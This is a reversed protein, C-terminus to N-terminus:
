FNLGYPALTKNLRDLHWLRVALEGEVLVGLKRGDASLSVRRVPGHFPGLTMLQDYGKETRAFLQVLGDRSGSALLRGDKSFSLSRIPLDHSPLKALTKLDPLQILFQEGEETGVAVIKEDARLAVTGITSGLDLRQRVRSGDRASHLYLIGERSGLVVWKEGAALSHFARPGYLKKDLENDVRGALKWKPADWWALTDDGVLGWLRQKDPSLSLAKCQTAIMELWSGPRDVPLIWVSDVRAERAPDTLEIRIDLPGNQEKTRLSDVYYLQYQGASDGYAPYSYKWDKGSVRCRIETEEDAVQSDKRMCVLISMLDANPFRSQPLQCLLTEKPKLRAARGNKAAEDTIVPPRSGDELAFGNEEIIISKGVNAGTLRDVFRFRSDLLCPGLIRDLFFAQNASEHVALRQFSFNTEWPFVFRDKLQPSTRCGLPVASSTGQEVDCSIIESGWYCDADPDLAQRESIAFLRSGDSSFQFEKIEGPSMAITTEFSSVRLEYLRIEGESKAALFRGDPTLAVPPWPKGGTSIRMLTAGSVSEWIELSRRDGHAVCIWSGNKAIGRLMGGSEAAERCVQGDRLDILRQGAALWRGDPSFLYKDNGPLRPQRPIPQLTKLDYVDSRGNTVPIFSRGDPHVAVSVIKHSSVAQVKGVRSWNNGVNWCVTNGADGETVSFLFRGDPTFQVDRVTEQDAEWSHLPEGESKLDWAHLKGHNTGAVLWRGNPDFALSSLRDQFHDSEGSFLRGLNAFLTTFFYKGVLRAAPKNRAPNRLEYVYVWTNPVGKQHAIALKKGDPSIAIEGPPLDRIVQIERADFGTLASAMLTRLEAPSRSPVNFQAAKKLNEEASWTWGRQKKIREERVASVLSFYRETNALKQKEAALESAALSEQRFWLGAWVLGVILLSAVALATVAPNRRCWRWAQEFASVPRSQIPRGELFRDLEEALDAASGLRKAPDKELCKLCLTELDAHCRPNIQRPPTPSAEKVKRLVEYLDGEFPPQGTLLFYLTAGFAYVDSAVTTAAANEAQEPPMYKPTGMAVGTLTMGREESIKALGFDTVLARGTEAEVLVNDPKLDRHLIGHQHAAGIGCAVQRIIEAARRNDLPGEEVLKSLSHGPVFQMSYFPQGEIEGVEYVTVLNDHQLRAAAKAEVRFREVAERRKPDNEDGFRDPRIIKLAVLRDASIQRAKFVVGM